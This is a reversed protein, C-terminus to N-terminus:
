SLHLPLSKLPTRRYRPPSCYLSGKRLLKARYYGPLPSGTEVRGAKQRNVMVWHLGKTRVILGFVSPRGDSTGSSTSDALLLFGAHMFPSCNQGVPERLM